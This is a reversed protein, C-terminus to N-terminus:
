KDREPPQQSGRKPTHKKLDAAKKELALPQLLNEVIDFVIGVDDAKPDHGRHIVAHGADLAADLIDRNRKSLYGHEVLADLKTQFGGIDGVTANMFMDVLARAGMVALRRSDAHLATYIERLLADLDNPLRYGWSPFQRSVPPPYYDTDDVDVDHSVLRRRLTVGGCGRCELMTYTTFWDIEFGMPTDESESLNRCAIVDHRTKRLCQNCHVWEPKETGM